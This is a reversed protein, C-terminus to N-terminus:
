VNEEMVPDLGLINAISRIMLDLEKFEIHAKITESYWLIQRLKIETEIPPFDEDFLKSDFQGRWKESGDSNIAGKNYYYGYKKFHEEWKKLCIEIQLELGKNQAKRALRYLGIMINLKDNDVLYEWEGYDLVWYHTGRKYSIREITSIYDKVDMDELSIHNIEAFHTQCKKYHEPFLYSNNHKTAHCLPCLPILAMLKQVWSKDNWEWVEHCNLQNQTTGCIACKNNFRIRTDKSLKAWTTQPVAVKLNQYKTTDPIIELELKLNLKKRLVGLKLIDKKSPNGKKIPCYEVLETQNSM